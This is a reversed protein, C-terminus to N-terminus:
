ESRKKQSEEETSTTKSEPLSRRFFEGAYATCQLFGEKHIMEGIVDLSMAKQGQYVREGNIAAWVATAITSFKLKGEAMTQWNEVIPGCKDEFLTIAHFTCRGEFTKDSLKIEFTNGM